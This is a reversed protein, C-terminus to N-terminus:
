WKTDNLDLRILYLYVTFLTLAAAVAVVVIVFAQAVSLLVFQVSFILLISTCLGVVFSVVLHVAVEGMDLGLISWVMTRM